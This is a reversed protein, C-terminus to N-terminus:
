TSADERIETYFGREELTQLNEATDLKLEQFGNLYCFKEYLM